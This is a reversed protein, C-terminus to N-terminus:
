KHRFRPTPSSPYFSAGKDKLRGDLSYIKLERGFKAYPTAGYDTSPAHRPRISNGETHIPATIIGGHSSVLITLRDNYAFGGGTGDNQMILPRETWESGDLSYCHNWSNSIGLFQIGNWFLIKGGLTSDQSVRSWTVGDDSKYYGSPNIRPTSMVCYSESCAIGSPIISSDIPVPEWSDGNTSTMFVDM